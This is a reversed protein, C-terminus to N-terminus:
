QSKEVLNWRVVLKSFLFPVIFEFVINSALVISYLGANIIGSEYLIKIIIISTSFRVSLGIGLLVSKQAGLTKKGVFLSALIKSINSVAVVLLVLLPFKLLYGMNIESGVWLFFLPAFLGYTLMKMNERIKKFNKSPLFEKLSIGALIAGLSSAKSFDGIGLFIFLIIGSILFANNKNLRIDKKLKFLFLAVVFITLLILSILATLLNGQTQTHVLFSLGILLAVEIIDDLTGIGIITQGFVTNVIGFEDLIPILIAEGVTAFSLAVFFSILWSYNFVFHILATGVLAESFIILFTAKLLFKSLSKMKKLDLEAGIIFLLLYMGLQALFEFIPSTTISLFPNKVALISGVILAGFIWPIRIKELFYGIVLTALLCVSIFLFINIM